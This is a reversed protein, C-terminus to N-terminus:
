PRAYGTSSPRSRGKRAALWAKARPAFSRSPRCLHKTRPCSRMQEPVHGVSQRNTFDIMAIQHAGFCVAYQGDTTLPGIAVREGRFAQPVKWRRGKFSIYDKSASRTRVIEDSDYETEPLRDPM